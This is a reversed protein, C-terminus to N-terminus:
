GRQASGIHESWETRWAKLGLKHHARGRGPAPVPVTDLQQLPKRHAPTIAERDVLAALDSRWREEAAACGAEDLVGTVLCVGHEDLIERLREPHSTVTSSDMSIAELEAKAMFPFQVDSM